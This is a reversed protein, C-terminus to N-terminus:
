DGRARADNLIKIKRFILKDSRFASKLVNRILFLACSEKTEQM